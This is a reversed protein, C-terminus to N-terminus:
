GDLSPATQLGNPALLAQLVMLIKNTVIVTLSCCSTHVAFVESIAEMLVGTWQSLSHTTSPANALFATAALRTSMSTTIM